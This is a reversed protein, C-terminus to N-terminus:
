GNVRANAAKIAALLEDNVQRADTLVAMHTIAAGPGKLKAKQLLPDFPQEGLDLGLRLETAHLTLAAFEAPAGLSLHGAKAEIKLNPVVSRIEAELLHYLPRYGKAAAILKELLAADGASAATPAAVPPPPKPSPGAPQGAGASAPRPEPPQPREATKKPSADSYIPKGGNSHIRELWSARAFPLGQERLWDIIENKDTFGQTAIAAMWDGLDRGTRTKLGGLFEREEEREDAAM